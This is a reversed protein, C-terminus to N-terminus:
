FAHRQVPSPPQRIDITNFNDIMGHESAEVLPLEFWFTSGVDVISDVGLTGGMRLLLQQTISLGIGTGKILQDKEDLRCFPQFIEAQRDAPIGKGTDQVSVRVHGHETSSLRLTVYGGVRNYKVANSMLNLLVQKLRRHDALVTLEDSAPPMISVAREKALPLLLSRCESLVTQLRVPELEFQMRDANIKALDLVDNVLELLHHGALIIEKVNDHQDPTLSEDIELLQSFGVIATLPTRLEHSMTALFQDKSRAASEAELRAQMLPSVDIVAGYVTLPKGQADRQVISSRSQVWVWHGDRHQLRYTLESHDAQTATIDTQRVRDIDDPHIRAFLATKSMGQVENLEHGLTQAWHCNFRMEDSQMTYEMTGIRNSEILTSLRLKETALEHERKKIDDIDQVIGHLRVCRGHQIEPLGISRAWRLGRTPHRVQLEINWGKGQKVAADYYTKPPQVTVVSQSWAQFDFGPVAEPPLGFMDMAVRSMHTRREQIDYEWTGINAAENSLELLRQTHALMQENQKRSTIDTQISVIRAIGGNADMVPAILNNVWYLTGDRRRNCIEGQWARGARVTQWIDQWFFGPHEDPHLLSHNKGLLEEKSYGCAACFAANAYIINGDLDTASFISHNDVATVFSDLESRAELASEHVAAMQSEDTIIGVHHREGQVNIRRFSLHIPFLRGDKHRGLAKLVPQHSPSLEGLPPPPLTNAFHTANVPLLEHIHKGLLEEATWGFMAQLARNTHRIARTSDLTVLGESLTDMIVRQREQILRLHTNAKRYGLVATIALLLASVITIFLLAVLLTHNSPSDTFLLTLSPM